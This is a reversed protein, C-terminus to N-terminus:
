APSKAISLLHNPLELLDQRDLLDPWNKQAAQRATRVIDNLNEAFRSSSELFQDVVTLVAVLKPLMEILQKLSETTRPDSLTDGFEDALVGGTQAARRLRDIQLEADTDSFADRATKLIGNTNEALRSSNQFFSSVLDISANLEPLKEAFSELGELTEPSELLQNLRELGAKPDTGNSAAVM